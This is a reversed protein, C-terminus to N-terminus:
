RLNIHEIALLVVKSHLENEVADIVKSYEKAFAWCAESGHKEAIAELCGKCDGVVHQAMACDAIYSEIDKQNM